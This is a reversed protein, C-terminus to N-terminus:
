LQDHLDAKGTEFYPIYGGKPITITIPDHKGASLYYLELFKRLRGTNIRVSADTQPPMPKLTSTAM